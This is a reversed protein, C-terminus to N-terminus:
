RPPIQSGYTSYIYTYNGATLLQDSMYSLVTFLLTDRLNQASKDLGKVCFVLLASSSIHHTRQLISRGGGQVHLPPGAAPGPADGQPLASNRRRSMTSM